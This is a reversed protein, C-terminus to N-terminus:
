QPQYLFAMCSYLHFAQDWPSPERRLVEINADFSEVLDLFDIATDAFSTFDTWKISASPLQRDLSQTLQNWRIRVSGHALSPSAKESGLAPDFQVGQKFRYTRDCLRLLSKRGPLHIDYVQIYDQTQRKRKLKQFADLDIVDEFIPLAGKVVQTIENWGFALTGSQGEPTHCVVTIQQPTIAQIYDTRFVRIAKMAEMGAWFAPIGASRLEEGYVQLEALKGTRSVRWGRSPLQLQATYPDRGMIKAFAQAAEKRAEGQIPEIVLFANGTNNPDSSAQAIAEQRKAQAKAKLRNLGERAQSVVKAAETRKLLRRYIQEAQEVKGSAEHVQALYLQVWPDNPREQLLPKLHRAASKYDKQELAVAVDNIM